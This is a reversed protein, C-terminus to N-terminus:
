TIGDLLLFINGFLHMGDITQVDVIDFYPLRLFPTTSFGNEKEISKRESETPANQYDAAVQKLESHLKPGSVKFDLGCFNPKTSFSNSDNNSQSNDFRPFKHKCFSCPILANYSAFGLMKRAAPLDCCTMILKVKFKIGNVEFGENLVELENVLADLIGEFGFEYAHVISWVLTFEKKFRLARPLNVFSFNFGWLSKQKRESTVFGDSNFMLYIPFYDLTGSLYQVCEEKYLRQCVKGDYIDMIDGSSYAIRKIGYRMNELFENNELFNTMLCKLPFCYFPVKPYSKGNRIDYLPSNLSKLFFLSKM